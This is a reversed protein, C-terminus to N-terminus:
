QTELLRHREMRFSGVPMEAIRVAVPRKPKCDRGIVSTSGSSGSSSMPCLEAGPEEHKAGGIVTGGEEGRVRVECVEECVGRTEALIEEGMEPDVVINKLQDEKEEPLQGAKQKWAERKALLKKRRKAEPTSSELRGVATFMFELELGRLVSRFLGNRMIWSSSNTRDLSKKTCSPGRWSSDGGAWFSQWWPLGAYTCGGGVLLVGSWITLSLFLEFITVVQLADSEQSWIAPPACSWYIRLVNGLALLIELDRSIFSIDPAKQLHARLLLCGGASMVFNSAVYLLFDISEGGSELLIETPPSNPRSSPFTQNLLTANSRPLDPRPSTMIFHPTPPFQSAILAAPVISINCPVTENLWSPVPKIFHPPSM